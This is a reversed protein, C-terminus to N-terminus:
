PATDEPYKMARDCLTSLLEAHSWTLPAVSTQTGDPFVQESLVGSKLAHQCVWAIIDDAKDREGRELLYQAHWLSTIFWPNPLADESRRHYADREYRPLAVGDQELTEVLTTYAHQMHQSDVDFLGFMFAGFFSSADITEDPAREGGVWHIGKYFSARDYDYLYREAARQIDEAATRWRVATETDEREDALQAAEVLAAYTVATTYTSTIFHEEWLDYSPKPLSTEEDIYGALFDAMPRIMTPYYEDLLSRDSHLAYYQGFLFVVIATEDEQIPAIDHGDHIYPHWSSGVNGDAQYKHMLYGDEHMGHRCFSFFQLPEHTYGLRILPWMAYAGDRPWSYAYSDREYNLMTTDCSAMVAGHADQHSKVLQASRTLAMRYEVPLRAGLHTTRESWHRWFLTTQLLYHLVGYKQILSHAHRAERITRGAAIWYTSRMSSHARITYALGIVSDVRGHEVPNGSLQGDEADRFTGERGEVGFLGCSYEDFTTGDHHAASVLFSRNGKYHLVASEEPLYQVTDSAYSDSIVFVQHFYLKVEREIDAHNIVHVNRMFASLSSDVFDDFEIAINMEANLATIRSLLVNDHYTVRTDWSGDDLWSLRGDVWVGIRHRLSKAACHNEQGVHPYYFDHVLGYANLGVLLSGNSLVVPRSM